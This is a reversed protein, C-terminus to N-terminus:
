TKDVRLPLWAVLLSFIPTLTRNRCCRATARAGLGLLKTMVLLPIEVSHIRTKWSLLLHGRAMHYEYFFSTRDVSPGYEHEVYVDKACVTKKEERTLRWGLEADEGYM